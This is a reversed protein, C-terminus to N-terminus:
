RSIPLRRHRLLLFFPVLVALLVAGAWFVPALPDQSYQIGLYRNGFEDEGWGTIFFKTGRHSVGDNIELWAERVVREEELLAVRGRVTRLDRRYATVTLEYAGFTAFPGAGATLTLQVRREAGAPGAALLVLNGDTSLVRVAVPSDAAIARGPAGEIIEFQHLKNGTARESVGLRLHLPYFEDRRERLVIGYGLPSVTGSLPEVFTTEPLDLFLYGTGVNGLLAKGGGGILIMILSLHVGADLWAMKRQARTGGRLRAPVRRWTCLVVNLGLAALLALFLPSHFTADVGVLRAASRLWGPTQEASPFPITSVMSLLILALFLALSTRLSWFCELVGKGM